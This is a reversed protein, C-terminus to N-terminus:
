VLDLLDDEQTLTNTVGVTSFVTKASPIPTIRKGFQVALVNFDLIDVKGGSSYDYNGQLANRFIKGFNVALINFDQIDVVGNGDGDGALAVFDFTYDPPVPLGSSGHLAEGPITIRYAGDPLPNFWVSITSNGDFRVEAPTIANGDADNVQLAYAAWQPNPITWFSLLAFFSRQTKNISAVEIQANPHYVGIEVPLAQGMALDLILGNTPDITSAELANLSSTVRLRYRGPALDPIVAEGADSWAHPEGTDFKANNNLDLYLFVDPSAPQEAPDRTQNVNEDLFVSAHISGLVDSTLTKGGFLLDLRQEGPGLTVSLAQAPPPTSQAFKADLTEQRLSYAGPTLNIMAFRGLSDTLACPEAADFAFDGDLDVYIRAHERPPEGADLSGNLNSDVFAVGALTAGSPAPVAVGLPVDFVRQGPSLTIIPDPTTAVWGPPPQFRVHYTGPGPLAFAFSSFTVSRPESAPDWIGNDNYDIWVQPMLEDIEGADRIGNRNLDEFAAVGIWNVPTTQTVGLRGIDRFSGDTVTVDLGPALPACYFWGPSPSVTVRVQGLPAQLFSFSGDSATVASPESADLVGDRDLDFFVTQGSAAPETPSAENDLDRDIVVHGTVVANFLRRAELREIIYNRSIRSSTRM